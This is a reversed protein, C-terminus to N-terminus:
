GSIPMGAPLSLDGEFQTVLLATLGALALTLVVFGGGAVAVARLTSTRHASRLGLVALAASWLFAIAGGVFPVAKLVQPGAAYCLARATARVPRPRRTLGRAVAHSAAAFLGLLALAKFPSLFFQVLASGSGAAALEGLGIASMLAPALLLFWVTSFAAGVVSFVLFYLLPWGLGGDWRLRSYFRGPETLSECWSDVLARIGGETEWPTLGGEGPAGSAEEGLATGCLPCEEQEPDAEHGCHPCTM